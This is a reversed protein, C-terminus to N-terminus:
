LKRLRLRTLSVQFSGTVYTCKEYYAKRATMSPRQSRSRIATRSSSRTSRVTQAEHATAHARPTRSFFESIYRLSLMIGQAGCLLTKM